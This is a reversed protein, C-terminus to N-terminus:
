VELVYAQMTSGTGDSILSIYQYGSLVITEVSMRGTIQGSAGTTSAAGKTNFWSNGAINELVIDQGTVDFFLMGTSLKGATITTIAAAGSKERITITGAARASINGYRDGLFAGYLTKWKTALVSDVATVGNLTITHYKFADANDLGFLTISQTDGASDSIVQIDDNAPQNSSSVATLEFIPIITKIARHLTKVLTSM